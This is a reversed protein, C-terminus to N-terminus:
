AIAEAIKKDIYMKLDARYEVSVAGADTYINNGGLITRVETPTLQYTQHTALKYVIQVPTNAAYLQAIYENAKALTNLSRDLTFRIRPQLTGASGIYAIAYDGVASASPALAFASCLFGSEALETGFVYVGVKGFKYGDSATFYYEDYATASGKNTFKNTDGDLTIGKHTVTLVGSVLDLTGGYITGAETQWTVPYTQAAYPEYATATSGVELQIGTTANNVTTGNGVRAHIIITTAKEVTFTAKNNTGNYLFGGDTLNQVVIGFPSSVSVTYTGALIVQEPSNAYSWSNGTATGNATVTGDANYTWTIGNNVRGGSTLPAFLNKGARTVTLGTRGSIPCINSYPAFTGDSETALRIMPSFVINSVTQGSLVRCLVRYSHGTELYLENNATSGIDDAISTINDWKKAREDTTTDWVYFNYKSSSGGSPCGSFYLNTERPLDTESLTIAFGSNATATGTATITGDSNVTWTIGNITESSGTNNLLNKGGGGPWPKDYGNLDQIPNMTALVSTMPIDDAGDEITVIDEASASEVVLANPFSLVDEIGSVVAAAEAASAAAANRYSLANAESTSASTASASASQQAATATDASSTASSAADSATNADTSAQAASDEAQQAAIDAREAARRIQTLVDLVEQEDIPNDIELGDLVPAYALTTNFERAVYGYEDDEKMCVVFGTKGSTAFATRDVVWNFLILDEQVDQDFVLYIDGDGASNVYNVQIAFTSMDIGNYYRPMAFPVIQVNKDNFVGLVFGDPITVTRLNKDILFTQNEDIENNATAVALAEEYTM